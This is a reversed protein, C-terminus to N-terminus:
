LKEPGLWTRVNVVQMGANEAATVGREADEFVLCRVPDAGLLEACKLFTDPAPKYACVDDATVIVDFLTTLELTNLTSMTSTKIRGTGLAIPLRPKYTKLIKLVPEIPKIKHQYHEFAEEKVAAIDEPNIHKIADPYSKLIESAIITSPLGAFYFFKEKPYSIGYKSCAKNWAALHAPNSDVLTGDLDFILAATLPTIAKELKAAIEKVTM